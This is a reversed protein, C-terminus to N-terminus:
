LIMFTCIERVIMYDFLYTHVPDKKNYEVGENLHLFSTRSIFIANEDFYSKIERCINWYANRDGTMRNLYVFLCGKAIDTYVRLEMKCWRPPLNVLELPDLYDDDDMLIPFRIMAECAASLAAHKGKMIQTFEKGQYKHEMPETGYEILWICKDNNWNYRVGEIRSLVNNVHQQLLSLPISVEFGFQMASIDWDCKKPPFGDYNHHSIYSFSVPKALNGGLLSAIYSM